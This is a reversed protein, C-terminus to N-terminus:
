RRAAAAVYARATAALQAPSAAAIQKSQRKVIENFTAAMSKGDPRQGAQVNDDGALVDTIAASAAGLLTAAGGDTNREIEVRRALAAQLGAEGSKKDKNPKFQTELQERKVDYLQLLPLRDTETLEPSQLVAVRLEIMDADAADPAGKARVIKDMAARWHAHFPLVEVLSFTDDILTPRHEFAIVLYDVDDIPADKGATRRMLQGDQVRLERPELSPDASGALLRYGSTGIVKGDLRGFRTEVGDMSFINMLGGVFDTAAKAMPGAVPGGVAAATKTALELLGRVLSSDKFRCLSLYMTVDNGPVPVNKAVALNAFAIRKAADAPANPGVLGRIMDAGAIFPITRKDGAQQFSLVCTCMPLFETLYRGATALRLEILRVSFYSRGAEFKEGALGPEPSDSVIPAYIQRLNTRGHFEAGLFEVIPEIARWM